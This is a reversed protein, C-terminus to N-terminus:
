CHVSRGEECFLFGHSPSLANDRIEKLLISQDSEGRSVALKLLLSLSRLLMCVHREFIKSCSCANYTFKVTKTREKASSM